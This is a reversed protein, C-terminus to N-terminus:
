FRLYEVNYVATNLKLYYDINQSQIKGLNVGINPIIEGKEGSLVLYLGILPILYHFFHSLVLYLDQIM